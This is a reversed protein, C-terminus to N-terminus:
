TGEKERERERELVCIGCHYTLNAMQFSTLYLYWSPTSENFRSSTTKQVGFQRASAFVLTALNKKARSVLVPFFTGFSCLIYWIAM